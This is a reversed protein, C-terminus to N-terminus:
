NRVVGQNEAPTSWRRSSDPHPRPCRGTIRGLQSQRLETEPVRRGTPGLSGALPSAPQSGQPGCGELAALVQTAQRFSPWGGLGCLPNPPPAVPTDAPSSPVSAREGGLAPIPTAPSSAAKHPPIIEPLTILLERTKTRSSIM